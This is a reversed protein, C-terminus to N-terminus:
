FFHVMSRLIYNFLETVSDCFSREDIGGNEWWGFMMASQHNSKYWMYSVFRLCHCMCEWLIKSSRQRSPESKLIQLQDRCVLCEVTVLFQVCIHACLLWSYETETNVNEITRTKTIGPTVLTDFNLFVIILKWWEFLLASEPWQSIGCRSLSAVSLETCTVRVLM